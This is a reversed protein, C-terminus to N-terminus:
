GARKRGAMGLVGLGTLMLWAPAPLPVVSSVAETVQLRVNGNPRDYVIDFAGTGFGFLALTAFLGNLSNPAADLITIEDGVAFSCAGACYLNLAGNLNGAGSVQLLDASLLSNLEIDLAGGAAQTYSGLLNLTGIADVGPALTGANVLASAPTLSELTGDGEILGANSFTNTQLKGRSNAAATIRGTAGNTFPTAVTLTAGNVARLVGDNVLSSGGGNAPNSITLTTGDVDALILGKNVLTNNGAAFVAQGINGQGRVTIGNGLTGSGEVALRAGADNLNITGNGGITQDNGTTQWSDLSLIGGNGVNAMGNLTLGNIIRKRANTITTLDLTGNLTM